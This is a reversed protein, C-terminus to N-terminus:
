RREAAARIWALHQDFTKRGRTHNSGPLLSGGALQQGVRGPISLPLVPRHQGRANLLRRAMDTMQLQEPEALDPARGAPAQTAYRTLAEAVEDAAVPQSLM